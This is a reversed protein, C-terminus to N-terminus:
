ECSKGLLQHLLPNELATRAAQTEAEKKSRGAGRGLERGQWAVTSIFQKAHDPGEEGVIQYQPAVPSIAQITEQLEGKPNRELPGAQLAKLDPSFMRTAFALAAESGADLYIAGAIAELADALASDRNRGGNADEGRGMILHAGLGLHRALRALAKTSVLQARAKTLVGEDAEQQQLYLLHSLALQLVADGLFELRQNDAQSRQSEYAVSGHTLALELLLPDKFRHGIVDELTSM